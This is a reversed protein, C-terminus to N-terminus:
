GYIRTTFISSMWKLGLFIHSIQGFKCFENFEEVPIYPCVNSDTSNMSNKWPLTPSLSEYRDIENFEEVNVYPCINMGASYM